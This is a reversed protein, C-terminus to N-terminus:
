EHPESVIPIRQVIEWGREGHRMVLWWSSRAGGVFADIRFSWCDSSSIFVITGGLAASAGGPIADRYPQSKGRSTWLADPLSVQASEAAVQLLVRPTTNVNLRLVATNTAGDRVAPAAHTSILEGVGAGAGPGAGPLPNANGNLTADIDSTNRPNRAGSKPFISRAGDKPVPFLDLGLPLEHPTEISALIAAVDPPVLTARRGSRGAISWPLMALQDWASVVLRPSHAGEGDSELRAPVASAGISGSDPSRVIEDLVMWRPTPADPPLAVLASSEDLWSRIPAIASDALDDALAQDRDANRRAVETAATHAVAVAAVSVFLLVALVVLIAAGRRNAGM